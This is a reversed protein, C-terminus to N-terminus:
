RQADMEQFYRRPLHEQMQYLTANSGLVGKYAQPFPPRVPLSEMRFATTPKGSIMM